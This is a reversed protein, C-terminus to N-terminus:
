KVTRSLLRDLERHLPKDDYPEWGIEDALFKRVQRVLQRRNRLLGPTEYAVRVIEPALRNPWDQTPKIGPKQKEPAPQKKPSSETDNSQPAVPTGARLYLKDLDVLQVYVHADLYPDVRVGEQPHMPAEVTRQQWDSQNLLTMTGDPLIKMSGLQGSRLDRIFCSRTLDRQGVRSMVQVFADTLEVWEHPYYTPPTEKPKATHRRRPDGLSPSLQKKSERKAM